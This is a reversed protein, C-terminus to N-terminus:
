DNKTHEVVFRLAREMAEAFPQGQGREDAALTARLISIAELLAPSPALMEVTRRARMMALFWACDVKESPTCSKTAEDFTMTPIDVM